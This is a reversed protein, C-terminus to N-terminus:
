LEGGILEAEDRQETQNRKKTSGVGPKRGAEDREDRDVSRTGNSERGLISKSRGKRGTADRRSRGDKTGSNNSKTGSKNGQTGSDSGKTGSKTGNSDDNPLTRSSPERTPADSINLDIGYATQIRALDAPTTKFERRRDTKRAEIGYSKLRNSVTRPTWFKAFTAQDKEQAERLIEGATPRLGAEIQEALIELLTEDADPIADDRAADISDAAHAQMMKLLGAEGQDEVWAALALLPQWLEFNRGDIGPPCVDNRKALALWTAGHELAFAHLDDRQAQWKGPAGDIRRKPTLSDAGARFMLVPICRSSLVPPPGAICALAKPSYVDFSVPRFGDGVPELRTATGGRKYGALLMAMIEQQAPDNTQRLREAEDLLLTGGRDHLTRFLAPGTLSSSAMPRFVVRFLTEFVRTKGSGMPGGLFLYPVAPWARFVYTLVVWLALTTATAKAKADPLEVFRLIRDRLRRLLDATDPAQAGDLWAKRAPASWDSVTSVAPAGPTPHTWLKKGGPLDISGILPRCERKGDAWRLFLKYVASPKGDILCALPVALGSVDPTFFQEPRVIRSVDLEAEDAVTKGNGAAISLLEAAVAKSKLEPCKRALEKAFRERHRASAINIEDVYVLTGALRASLKCKGNSGVRQTALKLGGYPEAADLLKRLAEPGRAVLFDDLGIKESGGVGSNRGTADKADRVQPLRVIKVVAGQATLAKALEREAHQVNPKDAADSDFIVFVTRGKWAVAALDPIMKRPGIPRKNEDRQRKHQWGWDGILGICPFGHQDAAASKKEGETLILPASPNQLAALTGPPLYARNGAGKPSEYRVPKDDQDDRPCDPKLRCYGTPKGEADTFPIALCAGLEGNYREWGLIEQVNDADSITQFGCAAIQEDSLGSASLDALHAATLRCKAPKGNKSTSAVISM